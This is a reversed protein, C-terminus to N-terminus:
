KLINLEFCFFLYIFPSVYDKFIFYLLLPDWVMTTTVRMGAQNSYTGRPGAPRKDWASWELSTKKKSFFFKERRELRDPESSSFSSLFKKKKKKLFIEKRNKKKKPKKLLTDSTQPLHVHAIQVASRSGSWVM